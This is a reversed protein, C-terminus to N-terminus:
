DPWNVHKNKICQYSVHVFCCSLNEDILVGLYKVYYKCELSVYSNNNKDFVKLNVQYPLKKLAIDQEHPSFFCPCIFPLTKRKTTKVRQKLCKQMKLFLNLVDTMTLFVIVGRSCSLRQEFSKLAFYNVDIM